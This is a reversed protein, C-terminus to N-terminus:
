VFLAEKRKGTPTKLKKVWQKKKANYEKMRPESKKLRTATNPLIKKKRKIKRKLHPVTYPLSLRGGGGGM